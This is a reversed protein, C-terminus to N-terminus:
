KVNDGSVVASYKVKKKIFYKEFFQYSLAALVIAVAVTLPYVLISKTYYLVLFIKVACIIALPHFMYLGYSIKGLYTFLKNELSFIPKPNAAFNCVQYGLLVAYIENNFFNDISNLLTEITEIPGNTQFRKLRQEPTEGGHANNKGM